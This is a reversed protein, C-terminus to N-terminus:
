PKRQARQLRDIEAAILAGARVLNRLPDKPKYDEDDWPWALPALRGPWKVPDYPQGRIAFRAHEVYCAAAALMSADDHDDDHESTWGERGLQAARESAILAAGNLPENSPEGVLPLAALLKDDLGANDLAIWFDVVHESKRDEGRSIQVETGHYNVVTGRQQSTIARVAAGLLRMERTDNM